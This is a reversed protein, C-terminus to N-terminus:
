PCSPVTITPTPSSQTTGTVWATFTQGPTFVLRPTLDSGIRFSTSMVSRDIYVKNGDPEDTWYYKGGSTVHGGYYSDGRVNLLHVTVSFRYQYKTINTAAELQEARAPTGGTWEFKAVPEAGSCSWTVTPTSLATITNPPADTVSPTVEHCVCRRLNYRVPTSCIGGLGCQRDESCIKNPKCGDGSAKSM